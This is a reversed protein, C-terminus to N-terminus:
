GEFLEDEKHVIVWEGKENQEEVLHYKRKAEKDIILTERAPKGTKSMKEGHKSYKKFRRYGEAKQKVRVMELAKISDTLTVHRDRSGCKPCKEMEPKLPEGCRLCKVSM